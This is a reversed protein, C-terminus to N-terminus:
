QDRKRLVRATVATSRGVIWFLAEHGDRRTVREVAGTHIVQEVKPLRIANLVDVTDGVFIESERNERQLELYDEIATEAERLTDCTALVTLSNKIEVSYRGQSKPGVNNHIVIGKGGEGATVYAYKRELEERTM